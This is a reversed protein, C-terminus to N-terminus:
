VRGMLYFRSLRKVSIEAISCKDKLILGMSEEWPLHNLPSLGYDLRRLVM